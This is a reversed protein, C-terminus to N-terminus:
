IYYMAEGSPRTISDLTLMTLKERTMGQVEEWCREVDAASEGLGAGRYCLLDPEIADVVQLITVEEPPRSLRWGGSKGRKSELFGGKKLEHFILSLFPLPVKEEESIEETRFLSEGDHRRGLFALARCAYDLKQSVKM